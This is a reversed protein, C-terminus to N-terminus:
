HPWLLLAVATAALAGCAASALALLATQMPARNASPARQAAAAAAAVHSPSPAARHAAIAGPQAIPLNDLLDRIELSKAVFKGLVENAVEIFEDVRETAIRSMRDASQDVLAPMKQVESRASDSSAAVAAQLSREAETFVAPLREIRTVLADMDGMMEVVLAERVSRPAPMNM